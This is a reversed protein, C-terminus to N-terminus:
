RIQMLIRAVGLVLFVVGMVIYGIRARNPGFHLIVPAKDAGMITAFWSYYFLGCAIFICGFVLDFAAQFLPQYNTYAAPTATMLWLLSGLVTIVVTWTTIYLIRPPAQRVDM